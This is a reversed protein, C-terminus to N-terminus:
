ENGEKQEDLKIGAMAATKEKSIPVSKSILSDLDVGGEGPQVSAGPVVSKEKKMAVKEERADEPLMSAWNKMRYLRTHYDLNMMRMHVGFLAEMENEYFPAYPFFEGISPVEADLDCIIRLTVMAYTSDEVFSYSLEYKDNIYAACAQALRLGNHKMFQAYDLLDVLEIVQVKDQPVYVKPM